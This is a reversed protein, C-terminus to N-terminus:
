LSNKFDIAAQRFEKCDKTIEMAASRARAAASKNGGQLKTANTKLVELQEEINQILKNM